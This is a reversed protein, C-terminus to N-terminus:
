CLHKIPYLSCTQSKYLWKFGKSNVMKFKFTTVSLMNLGKVDMHMEVMEESQISVGNSGDLPM